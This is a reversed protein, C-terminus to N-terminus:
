IKKQKRIQKAKQYPGLRVTQEFMDDPLSLPLFSHLSLCLSLSIPLVGRGGMFESPFKMPPHLMLIIYIFTAWFALVDIFTLNPLHIWPDVLHIRTSGTSGPPDTQNRSKQHTNYNQIISKLLNCSECAEERSVNVFDRENM